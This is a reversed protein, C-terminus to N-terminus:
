NLSVFKGSQKRKKILFELAPIDCSNLVGAMSEIDLDIKYVNNFYASL